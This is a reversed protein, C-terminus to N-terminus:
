RPPAANFIRSLLEVREQATTWRPQAYNELVGTLIETSLIRGEYITLRAYLETRTEWSWMQDFFLNGLGYLIIGQGGEDTAGYPEMAQPVHSQVGTVLDAGAGRLERFERVQEGTPSANYTEAYQLEVAVVDVKEAMSRIHEFILEKHDYYYCAGPETDTVWAGPPDFALAAIFAFTNGNHEWLLPACAEEVTFGSGYIPIENEQYFTLSRRAGERGFDNVHNGSLGVIDTGIAQLTAWYDTHSCLTLNNVTNRVVCDDLFPIENSVHTIDAAALTASIILAPYLVGRREMQDATGRSMATVGTMILTTLENPARNTFPKTLPQLLPALVSSGTGEVTLAVALPYTAPQLRNSLVNVGDVTLVKYRPDLQDFAILGISGPTAELQTALEDDPVPTAALPGLIMALMAAADDTALLPEIASGQWRAKVEALTIDDDVTAFPVVVAFFREALTVGPAPFTALKVQAGARDSRNVVSLLQPGNSTALLPTKKFLTGFASAYSKPLDPALAVTVPGTIIEPVFGPLAAAAGVPLASAAPATSPQAICGSWLLSLLVFIFRSRRLLRTLKQLHIVLFHPMVNSGIKTYAAHVFFYSMMEYEHLIASAILAPLAQRM